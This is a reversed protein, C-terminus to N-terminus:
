FGYEKWCTYTAQSLTCLTKFEAWFCVCLFCIRTLLHCWSGKKFLRYLDFSFGIKSSWCIQSFLKRWFNLHSHICFRIEERLRFIVVWFFLKTSLLPSPPKGSFKLCISHAISTKFDFLTKSFANFVSFQDPPREEEYSSDTVLTCQAIM